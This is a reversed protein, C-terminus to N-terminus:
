HGIGFLLHKEVMKEVSKSFDHLSVGLWAVLPNSCIPYLPQFHGNHKLRGVSQSVGV